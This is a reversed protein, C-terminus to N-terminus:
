ILIFRDIAEIALLNKEIDMYRAIHRKNLLNFNNLAGIERDELEAIPALPIQLRVNPIEYLCIHGNEPTWLLSRANDKYQVHPKYDHM